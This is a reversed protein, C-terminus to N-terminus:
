KSVVLDGLKKTKGAEVTFEKQFVRELPRDSDFLIKDEHFGEIRYAAGPILGPITLQGETDSTLTRVFYTEEALTKEKPAVVMKVFVKKRVPKGGGDVLRVEASSCPMLQVITPKGDAKKASLEVVAGLRSKADKGPGDGLLANQMSMGRDSLSPIQSHARLADAFYIPYTKEPDCGRLEFECGSPLGVAISTIVDPRYFYVQPNNGRPWLFEDPVIMAAGRVPNGDPGVVRGRLTVGRRLTVTVDKPSDGAKLDLPLVANFFRRDGYPKGATLEGASVARMVFDQNNAIALLHAPGASVTVQFTGDSQSTLTPLYQASAVASASLNPNNERLPAFFILVNGVPKGSGEEKVLGRLVVGRPLAFEVEHKAAGKPWTVKKFTSFYPEGAAAAVDIQFSEGPYPNVRFRGQADTRVALTPITTAGPVFTLVDVMAKRAPENTDSYFVRGEITQAPALSLRVDKTKAEKGIELKFKQTAFRDDQIVLDVRQGLSYGRITVTGKDDAVVATPWLPFDKAPFQEDPNRSYYEFAVLRKFQQKGKPLGAQPEREEEVRVVQGRVGAAPVGQLDLLHVRIVQEPQLRLEASFEHRLGKDNPSKPVSGPAGSYISYGTGATQPPQPSWPGMWAAGYGKASVLVSLNRVNGIALDSKSLRFKGEHDTTGQLVVERGRTEWHVLVAVQADALPKADAGLVRGSVTLGKAKEPTSGEGTLEFAEDQGSRVAVQESEPPKERDRSEEDRVSIAAIDPLKSQVELGSAVLVGAVLAVSLVGMALAKRLKSFVSGMVVEQALATVIPQAAGRVAAVVTSPSTASAVIVPPAAM